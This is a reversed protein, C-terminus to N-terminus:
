AEDPRNKLGLLSLKASKPLTEQPAQEPPEVCAIEASETLRVISQYPIEWRFNKVKGHQNIHEELFVSRGSDGVLTGVAPLLIDGARYMVEIRRGLLAFYRAM